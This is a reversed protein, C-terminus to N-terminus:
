VPAESPTEDYIRQLLSLIGPFGSGGEILLKQTKPPLTNRPIEVDINKLNHQRAGHVTIRDLM